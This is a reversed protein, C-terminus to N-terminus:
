PGLHPLLDQRLKVSAFKVASRLVERNYGARNVIRLVAQDRVVRRGSTSAIYAWIRELDRGEAERVALLGWAQNGVPPQRTVVIAALEDDSLGPHVTPPRGAKKRVM